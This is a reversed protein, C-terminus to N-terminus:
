KKFPPFHKDLFDNQIDLAKRAPESDIYLVFNHGANPMVKYTYPINYKKLQQFLDDHSLHFVSGEYGGGIFFLLKAKLKQANHTISRTMLGDLQNKVPQNCFDAWSLWNNAGRAMRDWYYRQPNVLWADYSVIAKCVDGARAAAVLGVGSGFSHGIMAFSNTKVHPRKWIANLMSLCDNVEGDLNEIEGECNLITGNIPIDQQFLPEGRMAPGVVVYGKRVLDALWGLFGPPIGFAAGHAYLIVPFQDGPAANAPSLVVGFQKLNDVSWQVVELKVDPYGRLRLTELTKLDAEPFPKWAPKDLPQLDKLLDIGEKWAKDAAKINGRTQLLRGDFWKQLAKQVDLGKLLPAKIAQVLKEEHENQIMYQQDLGELGPRVTDGATLALAYLCFLCHLTKKM